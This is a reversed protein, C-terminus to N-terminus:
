KMKRMGAPVPCYPVGLLAGNAHAIDPAVGHPSEVQLSVKALSMAIATWETDFTATLRNRATSYETLRRIVVTKAFAPGLQFYIPLRIVKSRNGCRQEILV